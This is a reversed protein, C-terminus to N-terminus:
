PLCRLLIETERWADDAGLVIIAIPDNHKKFVSISNRNSAKIYGTKGGIFEDQHVAPNKNPMEIERGSTLEIIKAERQRSIAMLEPRARYLYETLKMLDRATSVNRSSLGTAEELNTYFMNLAEIKQEMAKRLTEKGIHHELATAMANSSNILMAKIADDRMFMSEPPIPEGGLIESSSASVFIQTQEPIRDLTVLTVILKTLSAIPWQRAANHHAVVTNTEINKVLRIESTLSALEEECAPDQAPPETNKEHTFSVAQLIKQLPMQPVEGREGPQPYTIYAGTVVVSALLLAQYRM